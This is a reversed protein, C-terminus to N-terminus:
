IKQRNFFDRPPIKSSLKYNNGRMALKVHHIILGRSDLSFNHFGGVIFDLSVADLVEDLAVLNRDGDGSGCNCTYDHVADGQLLVILEQTLVVEVVLEIGGFFAVLRWVLLGQCPSKTKGYECSNCV